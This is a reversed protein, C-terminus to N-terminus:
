VTFSKLPTGGPKDKVVGEKTGTTLSPTCRFKQEETERYLNEMGECEGIWFAIEDTLRTGRVIFETPEDLKAPTPTVSTVKPTGWEVEVSFTHLETGGSQDKVVGNDQIGVSYSPVCRFQQQEATGGLPTM